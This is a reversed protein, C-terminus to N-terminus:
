TEARCNLIGRIYLLNTRAEVLLNWRNSRCLLYIGPKQFIRSLLSNINKLLYLEISKPLNGLIQLCGISLKLM